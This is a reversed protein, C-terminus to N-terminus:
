SYKSSRSRASLLKGPPVCCFLLVPYAGLKKRLLEAEEANSPGSVDKRARKNSSEKATPTPAATAGVDAAAQQSDPLQQEPASSAHGNPMAAEKRSAHGDGPDDESHAQM